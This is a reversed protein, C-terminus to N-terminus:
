GKKIMLEVFWRELKDRNDQNWEKNLFFIRKGLFFFPITFYMSKNREAEKVPIGTVELLAFWSLGLREKCYEPDFTLTEIHEKTLANKKSLYAFIVKATERDSLNKLGKLIAIIEKNKASIYGKNKGLFYTTYLSPYKILLEVNVVNKSTPYTKVEKVVKKYALENYRKLEWASLLQQNDKLQETTLYPYCIVYTGILNTKQAFVDPLAKDDIIGKVQYVSHGSATYEVLDLDYGLWTFDGKKGLVGMFIAVEWSTLVIVKPRILNEILKQTVVLQDELFIIGNIDDILRNVMSVKENTKYYFLDTYAFDDVLDIGFLQHQLTSLVRKFYSDQKLVVGLQKQINYKTARKVSKEGFSPNLGLFLIDKQEINESYCYKRHNLESPITAGNRKWITEIANVLRM